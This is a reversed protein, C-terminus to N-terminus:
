TAAEQLQTQAVWGEGIMSWFEGPSMANKWRAFDPHADLRGCVVRGDPTRTTLRVEEPRMQDLLYPSHTTAILQLHPKEKLIKALLGVLDRQAQPHLGHDLDDLLIVQPQDAGFIATLLGLVLLLGDSALPAPISPAGDIDFIIQEGYFVQVPPPAPTTTVATYPVTYPVLQVRKTEVREFRLGRVFPFLTRLLDKLQAFADPQNLALYALASALGEGDSRIQPKSEESSSPTSLCRTDLNLYTAIPIAAIEAPSQLNEWPASAVLQRSQGAICYPIPDTLSARAFSDVTVGTPLGGRLKFERTECRIEIEMEGRAGRSLFWFPSVPWQFPNSEGPVRNRLRSVYLLGQLISTKGSANPGVLVTFREFDVKVDHLGKFNRFEAHEIM